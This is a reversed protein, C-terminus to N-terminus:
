VGPITKLILLFINMRIISTTTSQPDKCANGPNMQHETPFAEILSPSITMWPQSKQLLLHQMCDLQSLTLVHDLGRHTKKEICANSRRFPGGKHSQPKSLHEPCRYIHVSQDPPPRGSVSM